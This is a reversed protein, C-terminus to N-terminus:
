FSAIGMDLELIIKHTLPALGVVMFCGTEPVVTPVDRRVVSRIEPTTVKCPVKLYKEFIAALGEAFGPQFPRHSLYQEVSQQLAIQARTYRPLGTFQFPRVSPM